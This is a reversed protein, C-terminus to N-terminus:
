SRSWIQNSMGPVGIDHTDVLHLGAEKLLKVAQLFQQDYVESLEILCSSINRLTEDGGELIHHETGDVDIKLYTPWTQRIQALDDLTFGTVRYKFKPAFEVGWHNVPTGFTSLAGGIQTTSLNLDADLVENSLAFPAVTVKDTVSNLHINLALAQLNFVSPEIALIRSVGLRAAYICYLGINAGVDWFVDDPSMQQIWRLTGPEKHSFTRARYECLSNPTVFTLDLDGHKVTRTSTWAKELMAQRTAVTPHRWLQLVSKFKLM